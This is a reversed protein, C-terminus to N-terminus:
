HEHDQEKQTAGHKRLLQKFLTYAAMGDTAGWAVIFGGMVKKTYDLRYTYYVICRELGDKYSGELPSAIRVVEVDNMSSWVSLPVYEHEILPIPERAM